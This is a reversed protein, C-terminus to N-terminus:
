KKLSNKIVDYTYRLSPIVTANFNLLHQEYENKTREVEFEFEKVEDQTFTNGQKDKMKDLVVEMRSITKEYQVLISEAEEIQMLIANDATIDKQYAERKEVKQIFMKHILTHYLYRFVIIFREKAPTDRKIPNLDVRPLEGKGNDAFKFDLPIYCNKPIEFHRCLNIIDNNKFSIDVVQHAFRNRIRQLYTINLEENKSILGLYYSMKIKSDFTSLISNGKFLDKEVSDSKILFAKLLDSLLQDIISGCVLALGRDSSYELEKEFEGRAEVYKQFQEVGYESQKKM